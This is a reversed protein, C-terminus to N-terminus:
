SGRKRQILQRLRELSQFNSIDMDEAEFEVGFTSEIGAVFGVLSLSDLAGTALLGEGDLVRRRVSADMGPAAAELVEM